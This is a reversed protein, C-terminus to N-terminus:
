AALIRDVEALETESLTWASAAANETVQQATTAGAIVSGVSPRALLWAFALELITHGRSEAFRSLSEVISLNRENLLPFYRSEEALRTGPKPPRNTRVKGTLLGNALPYYPLYAIGQRECEPLIGAEDARNLLSYENQISVFRTAGGRVASEAERLQELTLNSCGIERVKGAKVLKDLAALTDAIPTSADPRHLQYLDITDIQLRRLSDDVARHIYAPSAGQREDDIRTGFKTAIVVRGRRGHLARGMFEESRTGGYVDATDFFNIGHDLAADMVRGSAAEDIRWGFNNCGLGVISVDLSGIKRTQLAEEMQVDHREATLGDQRRSIVDLPM